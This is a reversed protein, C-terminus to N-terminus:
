LAGPKGYPMGLSRMYASTLLHRFQLERNICTMQLHLKASLFSLSASASLIVRLRRQSSRGEQRVLPWSRRSTASGTRLRPANEQDAMAPNNPQYHYRHVHTGPRRERRALYMEEEEFQGGITTYCRRLPGSLARAICRVPM